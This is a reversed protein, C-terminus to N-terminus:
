AVTSAPGTPNTSSLVVSSGQAVDKFAVSVAGYRAAAKFADEFYKRPRYQPEPPADTERVRLSPFSNWDTSGGNWLDM